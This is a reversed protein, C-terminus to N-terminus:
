GCPCEIRNLIVVGTKFNADLSRARRNVAAVIRLELYGADNEPYACPKSIASRALKTTVTAGPPASSEALAAISSFSVVNM